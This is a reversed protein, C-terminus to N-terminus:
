GGQLVGGVWIEGGSKMLGFRTGPNAKPKQGLPGGRTCWEIVAKQYLLGAKGWWFRDGRGSYLSGQLENM